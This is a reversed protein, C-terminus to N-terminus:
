QTCFIRSNATRDIPQDILHYYLCEHPRRDGSRVWQSLFLPYLFSGEVVTWIGLKRAQIPHNDKFRVKRGQFCRNLALFRGQKKGSVAVILCKAQDSGRKGM